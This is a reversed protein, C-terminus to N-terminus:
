HLVGLRIRSLIAYDTATSWAHFSDIEPGLLPSYNGLCRM